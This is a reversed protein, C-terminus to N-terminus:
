VAVAEGTLEVPSVFLQSDAGLHCPRPIKDGTITVGPRPHHCPGPSPSIETSCEVNRPIILVLTGMIQVTITVQWRVQDM